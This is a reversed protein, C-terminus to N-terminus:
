RKRRGKGAGPSARLGQLALEVYQNVVREVPIRGLERIRYIHITQIYQSIMGLIALAALRCDVPRYAGQRVRVRIFDSVFGVLNRSYAQYFMDAFPDQQLASYLLLRMFSPDDRTRFIATRFLTSFFLRDDGAAVAERPFMEDGLSRIKRRILAEYLGRKDGFLKYLMAVSVGCATAIEQIPAGLFGKKAFLDSARDLSLSKREEATLRGGPRPRSDPLPKPM